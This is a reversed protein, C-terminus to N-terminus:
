RTLRPEVAQDLDTAAAGASALGAAERLPGVWRSM